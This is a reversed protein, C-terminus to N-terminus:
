QTIFDSIESNVRYTLAGNVIRACETYKHESWQDEKILHVVRLGKSKAFDSIMSRHCRWYLAEACMMAVTGKRILNALDAFGDLFPPTEMYDAYNRFLQNKWCSNKSKRGLGERRGGLKQLWVCEIHHQPLVDAIVDSNFQPNTRSKPYSRVDALISVNSAHLIRILEDLSRTSHGVTFLTTPLPSFANM